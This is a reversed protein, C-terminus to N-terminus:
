EKKYVFFSLRKKSQNIVGDRRIAKSKGIFEIAKGTAEEYQKAVLEHNPSDIAYDYPKWEGKINVELIVMIQINRKRTRSEKQCGM